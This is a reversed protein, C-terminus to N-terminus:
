SMRPGSDAVSSYFDSFLNVGGSYGFYHKSGIMNDGYPASVSLFPIKRTQRLPEDWTSGLLFVAGRRFERKKIEQAALGGDETFIIDIPADLEVDQFYASVSVQYEEPVDESIFIQEPILGLDNVLYRHLSLSASASSNIFFKKPLVRCGYIWAISRNVYYYYRRENQDIYQEVVSKDLDAYEALERLFRTTETPGIPLDPYHFFPTGFRTELEKVIDLDVWPSLLLNFEAAPIKRVNEIGKDLGYIINPKLGVAILMKELQELTGAWFTDYYPVIGWINVQRSNVQEAPQLYQNIIAKLIQSHGYLNNGRFGAAEAYLVPIPNGQFSRAVEEMDDGVIEATCGSVAIVMDTKYSHLTNEIIQRLRDTGGFVVDAETFDTCPIVTEQYPFANQAGNIRALVAGAQVQCGPGCHLVPLVKDIALATYIGGIACTARQQEVICSERTM